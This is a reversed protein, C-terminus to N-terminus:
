ARVLVKPAGLVKAGDVTIELALPLLGADNREGVAGAVTVRAAGEAPVVVPAVFKAGLEVVEADGTWAAVARGVLALTYMGHAIVGPLGVALAIEEDQHIPNHDGSAVAYAVLDARTIDFTLPELAAGPQLATM